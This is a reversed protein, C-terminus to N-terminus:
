SHVSSPSPTVIAAYEQFGGSGTERHGIESRAGERLRLLRQFDADRQREGARLGAIADIEGGAHPLRQFVDVVRSTDLSPRQLEDNEVRLGVGREADVGHVPQDVDVLYRSHQGGPAGDHLRLRRTGIALLRQEEVDTGVRRLDGIEALEDVRQERESIDIHRRERLIRM